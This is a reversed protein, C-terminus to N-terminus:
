LGSLLADRVGDILAHAFAPVALSGTRRWAFSLPVGVACHVILLQVIAVGLGADAGTVLRHWLGWL